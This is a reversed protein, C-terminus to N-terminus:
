CECVCGCEDSFQSESVVSSLCWLTQIGFVVTTVGM